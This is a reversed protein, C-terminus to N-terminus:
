VQSKSNSKVYMRVCMSVQNGDRKNLKRSPSEAMVYIFTADKPIYRSYVRFPLFGYHTVVNDGCRYHIAADPIAPLHNSSMTMNGNEVNNNNINNNNNNNNNNNGVNNNDANTDADMNSATVTLISPSTLLRRGISRYERGSLDLRRSRRRSSGDVDSGESSSASSSADSAVAAASGPATATPVSKTATDTVDVAAASGPATATPVSESESETSFNSVTSSSTSTATASETSSLVPTVPTVPVNAEALAPPPPPPIHPATGAIDAIDAIPIAIPIFSGRMVQVSARARGNGELVGDGLAGINHYLISITSTSTSTSIYFFM